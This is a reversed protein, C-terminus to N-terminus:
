GFVESEIFLQPTPKLAENYSKLYLQYSLLSVFQKRKAPIKLANCTILM